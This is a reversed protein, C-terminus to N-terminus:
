VECRIRLMLWAGGAAVVAGVVPGIIFVEGGFRLWDVVGSADSQAVALLVLILPLVVVDNVGAEFSLVNRISRPLRRDRVIDRVVVADTSALVAGLLLAHTVPLDLLLYSGGAVLGVTV